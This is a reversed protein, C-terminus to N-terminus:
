RILVRHLSNGSSGSIRVLYLGKKWSSTEIRMLPGHMSSRLCVQGQLDYVEIFRENSFPDCSLMFHDGAPNPFVNASFASPSITSVAFSYSINFELVATDMTNKTNRVLYRINSKGPYGFTSVHFAIFGSSDNAGFDGTFNGAAPLDLKCDGNICGMFDWRSDLSDSLKQFSYDEINYAGTQFGIQTEMYLMSQTAQLQLVKGQPFSLQAQAFCSLLLISLTFLIRSSM